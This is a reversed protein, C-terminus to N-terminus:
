LNEHRVPYPDQRPPIVKSSGEQHLSYLRFPRAAEEYAWRPLTWVLQGPLLCIEYSIGKRSVWEGAEQCTPREEVQEKEKGWWDNFEAWGKRPGLLIGSWALPERLWIVMQTPKKKKGSLICGLSTLKEGSGVTPSTRGKYQALRPLKDSSSSVMCLSAWEGSKSEMLISAVRIGERRRKAELAQCMPSLASWIFPFLFHHFNFAALYFAVPADHICRLHYGSFLIGALLM